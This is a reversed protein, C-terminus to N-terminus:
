KYCMNLHKEATSIFLSGNISNLDLDGSHWAMEKIMLGGQSYTLFMLPFQIHKHRCIQESKQKTQKAFSVALSSIWFADWKKHFSMIVPMHLSLLCLYSTSIGKFILLNLSQLLDRCHLEYIPRDDKNISHWTNNRCYASLASTIMLKIFHMWLGCRSNLTTKTAGAIFNTLIARRYAFCDKLISYARDWSFCELVTESFM